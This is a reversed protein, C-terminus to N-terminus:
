RRWFDSTITNNIKTRERFHPTITTRCQITQVKPPDADINWHKEATSGPDLKFAIDYDYYKKYPKGNEACELVVRISGDLKADGLNQIRYVGGFANSFPKITMLTPSPDPIGAVYQQCPAQTSKTTAAAQVKNEPDIDARFCYSGSEKFPFWKAAGTDHNHAQPAFHFTELPTWAATSGVHYSIRVDVNGKTAEGSNHMDMAVKLCLSDNCDIRFVSLRTVRLDPGPTPTAFVKQIRQQQEVRLPAQALVTATLLVATIPVVAFYRM